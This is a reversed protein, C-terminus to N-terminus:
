EIRLTGRGSAGFALPGREEPPLLYVGHFALHIVYPYKSIDRLGEDVIDYILSGNSQIPIPPILFAPFQGSGFCLPSVVFDDFIGLGGTFFWTTGESNWIRFRFIEDQSSPLGPQTIDRSLGKLLFNAHGPMTLRLSTLQQFPVDIRHEAVFLQHREIYPRGDLTIMGYIFDNSSSTAM